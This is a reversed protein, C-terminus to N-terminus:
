CGVVELPLLSYREIVIRPNLFPGRFSHKLLRFVNLLLLIILMDPNLLFYFDTNINFNFGSLASLFEITM